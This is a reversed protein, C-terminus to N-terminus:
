EGDISLWLLSVVTSLFIGSVEVGAAVVVDEGVGLSVDVLAGGTGGVGREM